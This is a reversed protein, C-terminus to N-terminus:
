GPNELINRQIVGPLITDYYGMGIFTRFVKNKSALERLHTLYESENMGAPLNLKDYKRISAPVTQDILADLSAAGITDLMHQVQHDRPGNHRLIFNDSIM